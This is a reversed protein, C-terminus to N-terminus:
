KPKGRLIYEGLKEALEIAQEATPVGIRIAMDLCQARHRQWAHALDDAEAKKLREEIDAASM